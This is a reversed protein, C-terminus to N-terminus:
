RKIRVKKITNYDVLIYEVNNGGPFVGDTEVDFDCAFKEKGNMRVIDVRHPAYFFIEEGYIRFEKYEYDIPKELVDKGNIDYVHLTKNKSSADTTVVGLYEESYAISQVTDKFEKTYLLEPKKMNKYVDVGKERFIAVTDESLFSIQSVIEKDYEKGGVLMNNDKGVESFNYFNVQSKAENGATTMYSAVVTAGDPSIDYDMPYGDDAVVTPIEAILNSSNSYPNYLKLTNSESEQELVAAVGQASVRARVIPYSTDMGVGEDEGNYVHFSTGGVDAAIVRKECTDVQVQKMEYGGNWVPRGAWDILSIGNNSFKLINKQFYRYEVNNSDSREVESVVSYHMYCRNGFQLSLLLLSGVGFVIVALTFAWIFYISKKENVPKSKIDFRNWMIHESAGEKELGSKLRESIM